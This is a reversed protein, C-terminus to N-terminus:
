KSRLTNIQVYIKEGNDTRQATYDIYLDLTYNFVNYSSIASCEVKKLEKNKSTTRLDNIKFILNNIYGDKLKKYPEYIRTMKNTKGIALAAQVMSNNDYQNLILDTVNADYIYENFLIRNIVEEESLQKILEKVTQNDCTIEEKSCGTVQFTTFIILTFRIIKNM